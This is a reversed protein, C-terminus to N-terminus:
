LSREPPPDASAQAGRMLEALLAPIEMFSRFYRVEDRDLRQMSGRVLPPSQPDDLNAELSIRLRFSFHTDALSLM